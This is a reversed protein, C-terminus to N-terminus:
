SSLMDMAETRLSIAAAMKYKTISIKFCCLGSKM